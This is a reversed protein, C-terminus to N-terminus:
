GESGVKGGSGPKLAVGFRGALRATAGPPDISESGDPMFQSGRGAGDEAEGLHEEIVDDDGEMNIDDIDVDPDELEEDKNLPEDTQHVVPPPVSRPLTFM